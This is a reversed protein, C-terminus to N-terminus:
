KYLSRETVIRFTMNNREAFNKAAEWKALNVAYTVQEYLYHKHNKRPQKTQSKPKVELLEEKIEGDETIYRVWYDIMYKHVKGDTPKVYPIVFEESSWNIVNPNNDLFTHMELEYSSMYRIKDVRGVYKEPHKPIYQGQRFKSSTKSPIVRAKPRPTSTQTTM